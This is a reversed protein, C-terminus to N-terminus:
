RRDGPLTFHMTTYVGPESEITIGYGAGFTYKIRENVNYVGIQRFFETSTQSEGSLVSKIAAENMGVGNDTVDILVNEGDRYLHIIIKGASGKPEIGHFIANEVIPQLSFRNIRADLLAEDDTIYELEITGGYRYKMITFYDDVLSFEDRISILDESSKAINKMLRSLSTSMDAIGESGQITAMWKITNLTNYLFHPNIQSQLVQYELDHRSKEDQLRKEMLESVNESLSNIGKGIEGLENNWELASDRSFDGQGIKELRKILLGVPRTITRQLILSLILGAFLIVAMILLIMLKYFHMRGTLASESPLYSLIWGTNPLTYSIVGQPIREKVLASGDYRFTEGASFTLYLADDGALVFSKLSNTIVREPIDLYVWGIVISSSSSYIPRIVPLIRPNGTRTLPNDTPGLWKYSPATVLEDFFLTDMITVPGNIAGQANGGSVSQLYRSGDPTSILVRDVHNRVGIINFENNLHNWASLSLKKGALPDKAYSRDVTQLYNSLTSDLCIWGAFTIVSSIDTDLENGLLHINTLASQQQNERLYRVSLVYSLSAVSLALVLAFGMAWIIIKNRISHRHRRM